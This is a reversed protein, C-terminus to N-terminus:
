LFLEGTGCDDGIYGPPCDCRHQDPGTNICTGGNQCLGSSRCKNLDLSLCFLLVSHFFTSVTSVRYFLSKYIYHETYCVAHINKAWTVIVTNYLVYKPEEDYWPEVTILKRPWLNNSPPWRAVYWTLLPKTKSHSKANIFNNADSDTLYNTQTERPPTFLGVVCSVAIHIVEYISFAMSSTLSVWVELQLTSTFNEQFNLFSYQILNCKLYKLLLCM